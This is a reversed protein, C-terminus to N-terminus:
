YFKVKVQFPCPTLPWGFTQFYEEHDQSNSGSEFVTLVKNIKRLQQEGEMYSIGINSTWKSKWPKSDYNVTKKGILYLRSEELLKVPSSGAVSALSV